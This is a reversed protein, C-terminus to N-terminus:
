ARNIYKEKKFSTHSVELKDYKREFHVIFNSWCFRMCILVHLRGVCYHLADAISRCTVLEYKKLKLKEKRHMKLHLNQDFNFLKFIVFRHNYNLYINKSIWKLIELHGMGNIVKYCWNMLLHLIISLNSFVEFLCIFYVHMHNKSTGKKGLTMHLSRTNQYM